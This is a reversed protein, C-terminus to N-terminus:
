QEAGALWIDAALSLVERVPLYDVSNLADAIFAHVLMARALQYSLGRQRMYFVAEEDLAGSAFGHACQVDDHAIRLEPKAQMLADPALLLAKANHRAISGRASALIDARTQFVGRAKAALVARALITSTCAPAEHAAHLTIDGARKGKGLLLAVSHAEAGEALLRVFNQVRSFKPPQVIIVSKYKAQKGVHVRTSAVDVGEGGQVCRVHVLEAGEDLSIDTISHHAGSPTDSTELLVARARAGLAIIHRVYSSTEELAASFIHIPKPRGDAAIKIVAGDKALAAALALAGDEEQKDDHFYISDPWGGAALSSIAVGQQAGNISHLVGGGFLATIAELSSLAGKAAVSLNGAPHAAPPPNKLIQALNSFKWLEHKRAPLGLQTFQALAASRLAQGWDPAAPSSAAEYDRAISAPLANM